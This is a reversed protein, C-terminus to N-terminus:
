ITNNGTYYLLYNYRTDTCNDFFDSIVGAWERMYVDVDDCLGPRYEDLNVTVWFRFDKIPYDIQETEYSTYDLPSKVKTGIWKYRMVAFILVSTLGIVRLVTNTTSYIHITSNPSNKKVQHESTYPFAFLLEILKFM